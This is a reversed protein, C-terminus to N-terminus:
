GGKFLVYGPLDTGAAFTVTWSSGFDGGDTSVEFNSGDGTWTWVDEDYAYKAWASILDDGLYLRDGNGLSYDVSNGDWDFGNGSCNFSAVFTYAMAPSVVVLMMLGVLLGLLGRKKATHKRM